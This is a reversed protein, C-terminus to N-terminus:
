MHPGGLLYKYILGYLNKLIIQVYVLKQFYDTCTSIKSFLEYM